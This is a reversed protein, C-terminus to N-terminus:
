LSSTDTVAMDFANIMSDYLANTGDVTMDTGTWLEGDRTPFLIERLKEALGTLRKFEPTFEATIRCFNTANMDNTKRRAQDVPRGQTWQYLVSTPPLQLQNMGPPVPRQCTALFLFTYLFSELDHRYTHPNNPLYAQLVGIAEFPPTGIGEFQKWPESVKKAMDLDILVGRPDTAGTKVGDSPIIINGPCIDQHLIEGDQYLSRHAKIADRLAYLLESVTKFRHLSEGLPSVVICNLIRNSIPGGHKTNGAGTTKVTHDIASGVNDRGSTAADRQLKRPASFLLGHHLTDTSCVAQHDFLQLVGWINKEKILELMKAESKESATSWKVKVVYEWRESVSIRARYCTLGDSVINKNVREFITPEGLYLREVGTKDDDGCLIYKGQSDEKILASVGLEADDMLTYGILVTLFRDPAQAIDFAECSYIGSRDFVWLEMKGGCIYFGHLFLRDPQCSFVARAHGCLELLGTRYSGDLCFEGIVMVDAWGLERGSDNQRSLVPVNHSSALTGLRKGLWTYRTGANRPLNSQFQSLWAAFEEHSQLDGLNEKTAQVMREAASSWPKDEFFKAYFGEVSAYIHGDIDNAINNHHNDQGLSETVPSKGHPPHAAAARDKSTPPPSSM